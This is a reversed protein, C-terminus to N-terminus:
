LYACARLVIFPQKQASKHVRLRWDFLNQPRADFPISKKALKLSSDQAKGRKPQKSKGKDSLNEDLFSTTLRTSSSFDIVFL